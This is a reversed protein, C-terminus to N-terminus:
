ERVDKIVWRKGNAVTSCGGMESSDAYMQLSSRLTEDLLLELLPFTVTAGELLFLEKLNDM